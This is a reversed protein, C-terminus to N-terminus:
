VLRELEVSPALRTHLCLVAEIRAKRDGPRALGDLSIRFKSTELSPTTDKKSPEVKLRDYTTRLLPLLKKVTVSGRCVNDSVVNTFVNPSLVASASM